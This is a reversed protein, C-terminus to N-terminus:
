QFCQLHLLQMCIDLFRLKYVQVGGYLHIFYLKVLPLPRMIVFCHILDVREKGSVAIM